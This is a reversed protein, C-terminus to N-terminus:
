EVLQGFEGGHGGDGRDEQEVGRIVDGGLGLGLRLGLQLRLGRCGGLRRGVLHGLQRLHDPEAFLLLGVDAGDDGVHFALDLGQLLLGLGEVFFEVGDGAMVEVLFFHAFGGGLEALDAAVDDGFRDDELGGDFADEGLFLTGLEVLDLGLLTLLLFELLLLQLLLQLLLELLLFLGGRLGLRLRLRLGQGGRLGSGESGEM